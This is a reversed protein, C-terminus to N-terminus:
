HRDQQTVPVDQVWHFDGALAQRTTHCTCGTGLPFGWSIGTKNHSLYMRYGIFIVLQHRDQTVHVDQVWYFDGALAQRTTHCTCGTGLPFGWSISAQRTTHCTCGTGLLFAWSILTKNHSLYMRYGISRYLSLACYARRLNRLCNKYSSTSASTLKCKM